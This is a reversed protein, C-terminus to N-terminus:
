SRRSRAISKFHEVAPPSEFYPSIYTRWEAFAPSQRFGITHDELTEWKVQLMYRSPTEISRRLEHALYGKSRALVAIAKPFATEFEMEAGSRISLVAAEIIL